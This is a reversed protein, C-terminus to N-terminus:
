WYFIDCMNRVMIEADPLIQDFPLPLIVGLLFANSFCAPSLVLARKMGETRWV